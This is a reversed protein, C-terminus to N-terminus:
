EKSKPIDRFPKGFMEEWVEMASRHEVHYPDIEVISHIMELVDEKSVQNPVELAFTYGYEDWRYLDYNKLSWKRIIREGDRFDEIYEYHSLDYRDPPNYKFYEIEAQDYKTASQWLTIYQSLGITRDVRWSHRAYFAITGGNINRGSSKNWSSDLLYKWPAESFLYFTEIYSDDPILEWPYKTLEEKEMPIGSLSDILDIVENQKMDIPLSLTFGHTGNSWHYIQADHIVDWNVTYHKTQLQFRLSDTEFDLALIEKPYQTFYIIGDDSQYMNSTVGDNYIEKRLLTYKDFFDSLPLDKPTEIIQPPNQVPLKDHETSFIQDYASKIWTATTKRIPSILLLGGTLLTISAAIVGAKKWRQMPAKKKGQLMLNEICKEYEQSFVPEIDSKPTNEWYLEDQMALAEKLHRIGNKTEDKM